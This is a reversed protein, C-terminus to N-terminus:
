DYTTDFDSLDSASDVLSALAVFWVLFAVIVLIGLVTGIIGLIYGANANGWGPRGPIRECEDRANKGIIWAPISLVLPCVVIGCIGLVLATTASGPAVPAQGRGDPQWGGQSPEWRSEQPQQPQPRWRPDTSEDTRDGGQWLPDGSPPPDSSM